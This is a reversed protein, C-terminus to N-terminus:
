NNKDKQYSNLFKHKVDILLEKINSYEHIGKHIGWSHEFWYVKENQKYTLFTHSPLDEEDFTLIFYSETEINAKTFLDRELEVQDWCVGLKSSKLEEPSQLYYYKDFVLDNDIYELLNKNNKGPVGYKINEMEQMIKEPM